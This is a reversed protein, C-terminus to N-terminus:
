RGGKGGFNGGEGEGMRTVFKQSRTDRGGNGITRGCERHQDGYRGGKLMM